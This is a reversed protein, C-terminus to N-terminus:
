GGPKPHYKSSGPPPRDAERLDRQGVDALRTDRMDQLKVIAEFIDKKSAETVQEPSSFSLQRTVMAIRIQDRHIILMRKLEEEARVALREAIFYCSPCCFVTAFIKADNPAVANQCNMCSLHQGM